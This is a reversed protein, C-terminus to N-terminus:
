HTIIMIIMYIVFALSLATGIIPIRRDFEPYRISFILAYINMVLIAMPIIFQLITMLIASLLAIPTLYNLLLQVILLCALSLSIISIKTIEKEILDISAM